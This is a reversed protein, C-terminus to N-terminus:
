KLSNKEIQLIKLVPIFFKLDDNSHVHIKM